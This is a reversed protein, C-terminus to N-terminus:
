ASTVELITDVPYNPFPTAASFRYFGADVMTLPETLTTIVLSVDDENVVTIVTGTPWVSLDVVLPAVGGAPAPVAPPRPLVETGTYYTSPPHQGEVVLCDVPMNDNVDAAVSYINGRWRGEAVTFYSMAHPEDQPDTWM